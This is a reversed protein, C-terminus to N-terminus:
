RNGGFEPRGYFIGIGGACVGADFIKWSITEDIERKGKGFNGLYTM